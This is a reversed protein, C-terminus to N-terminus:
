VLEAPIAARRGRRDDDATATGAGTRVLLAGIGESIAALARADSVHDRVVEVVAIAFGVAQEPTLGRDLAKERAGESDVLKRRQEVLSRVEGWTYYDALGEQLLKGLAKMTQGVGDEDQDNLAAVLEGYLANAAKWAEASVGGGATLSSLLDGSRTDILAIEARLDVLEPDSATKAFRTALQEPLDTSYRGHVFSPSEAGRLSKGGHSACVGTGNKM